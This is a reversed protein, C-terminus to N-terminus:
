YRDKVERLRKMNEPKKIYTDYYKKFYGKYDETSLRYKKYNDSKINTVYKKLYKNVVLLFPGEGFLVPFINKFADIYGVKAGVFHDIVVQYGNIMKLKNLMMAEVEGNRAFMLNHSISGTTMLIKKANNLYFVQELFTLKEPAMIEYGNDKLFNVIKEEGYDKTNGPLEMRTLYIKEPCELKLDHYKRKTGEMIKKILKEFEDSYYESSIFSPEPIVVKRFKTPVHVNILQDKKIGLCEMLEMFNGSMDSVGRGGNCGCYAIKYKKPEDMVYWMRNILDCIFHGWHKVFPGFFVVEEDVHKVFDENYEYFGGFFKTVKSSQVFKGNKELVGGIGWMIPNDCQKLPLITADEVSEVKLKTRKKYNRKAYNEFLKRRNRNM